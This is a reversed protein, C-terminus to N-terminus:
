KTDDKRTPLGREALLEMARDIPIRVIKREKDVWGYTELVKEEAARMAALDAPPSVRLGPEPPMPPTVEIPSIEPAREAAIREFRWLLWYLGLHVVIAAIVLALGFGVIVRVNIDRHEHRVEPNDQPRGHDTDAM